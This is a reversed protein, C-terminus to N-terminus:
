PDPTKGAIKKGRRKESYMAMDAAALMEDATSYGDDSLAVGIALGVTATRSGIQHPESVLQEIRALVAPLQTVPDVDNLLIGFEDGGLRAALDNVRLSEELRRAVSALLQDGAAHGLDDNV